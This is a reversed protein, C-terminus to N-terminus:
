TRSTTTARSYRRRNFHAVSSHFFMPHEPGVRSGKIVHFHDFVHIAGPLNDQVARIYAPSMDTAVAQIKARARRLRRWFPQLAVLHRCPQGRVLVPWAWIQSKWATLLENVTKVVVAGPTAVEPAKCNTTAPPALGVKDSAKFAFGNSLTVGVPAFIREAAPPTPMKAHPGFPSTLLKENLPDYIQLVVRALRRRVPASGGLSRKRARTSIPACRPSAAGASWSQLLRSETDTAHQWGLGRCLRQGLVPLWREPFAASAALATAIWAPQLSLAPPSLVSIPERSLPQLPQLSTTSQLPSKPRYLRQLRASQALKANLGGSVTDTCTWKHADEWTKEADAGYGNVGRNGLILLHWAWNSWRRRAGREELQRRGLVTAFAEIGIDGQQEAPELRHAGTHRNNRNAVWGQCHVGSGQALRARYNDDAPRRGVFELKSHRRAELQKQAPVATVATQTQFDAAEEEFPGLGALLEYGIGVSGRGAIEGILRGVVAELRQRERPRAEHGATRDGESESVEPADLAVANHGERDVPACPRVVPLEEYANAIQVQGVVHAHVIRQPEHGIRGRECESRFVEGRVVLKGTRLHARHQSHCPPRARQLARELQGGADRLLGAGDLAPREQTVRDQRGQQGPGSWASGPLTPRSFAGRTM